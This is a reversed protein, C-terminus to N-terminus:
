VERPILLPTIRVIEGSDPDPEATWGICRAALEQDLEPLDPNRLDALVDDGLGLDEVLKFDAGGIPMDVEFSVTGASLQLFLREAEAQLETQSETDVQTVEHFPGQPDGVIASPPEGDGATRGVTIARHAGRGEAWSLKRTWTLTPLLAPEFGASNAVRGVREAVRIDLLLRREPGWGSAPHMSVWHWDWYWELPQNEQVFRIAADLDSEDIPSAFTADRGIVAPVSRIPGYWSPTVIEALMLVADGTQEPLEFYNRGLVGPGDTMLLDIHPGSGWTVEVPKGVWIPTETHDDYCAAIVATAPDVAHRWNIPLRDTIPLRANVTGGSMGMRTPLSSSLQMGPLEAIALGTWPDVSMWKISPAPQVPKPMIGIGERLAADKTAMMESM